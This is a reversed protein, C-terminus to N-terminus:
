GSTPFIGTKYELQNRRSSDASGPTSPEKANTPQSSRTKARSSTPPTVVKPDLDGILYFENTFLYEATAGHHRLLRRGRRLLDNRPLNAPHQGLRQRANQRRRLRRRHARPKTRCQQMAQKRPREMLSRAETRPEPVMPGPRRPGHRLRRNRLQDPQCSNRSLRSSFRIAEDLFAGSGRGPQRM